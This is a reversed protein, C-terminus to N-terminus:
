LPDPSAPLSGRDEFLDLCGGLGPNHQLVARRIEAWGEQSVWETEIGAPVEHLPVANKLLLLPTVERGDQECFAVLFGL